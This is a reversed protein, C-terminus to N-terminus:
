LDEGLVQKKHKAKLFGDHNDIWWDIGEHDRNGKDKSHSRHHHHLVIKDRLKEIDKEFSM